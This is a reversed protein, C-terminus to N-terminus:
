SKASSIHFPQALVEAVSLGYARERQAVKADSM